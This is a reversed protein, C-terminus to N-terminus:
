EYIIRESKLDTEFENVEVNWDVETFSEVTRLSINELIGDKGVDEAAEKVPPAREFMKSIVENQRNELGNGAIIIELSPKIGPQVVKVKWDKFNSGYVDTISKHIQNEYLPAGGLNICDDERGLVEIEPIEGPNVRVMDGIRYRNLDIKERDPDTLLLSGRKEEELQTINLPQDSGEPVIELIFRDIKPVLNGYEGDQIAIAGTEVSGYLSVMKEFEWMSRLEERINEPLHDGFFIGLRMEPFVESPEGYEQRIENGISYAVLPTALLVSAKDNNRWEIVKQYDSFSRNLVSAGIGIAASRAAWASISSLPAGLNLLYDDEKMGAFRYVSAEHSRQDKLEKETYPIKKPEGSSGSSSFILGQDELNLDTAEELDDPLLIEGRFDGSELFDGRILEEKKM